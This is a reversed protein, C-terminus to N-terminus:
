YEAMTIKDGLQGALTYIDSLDLHTEEGKNNYAVAHGSIYRYKEAGSSVIVAVWGDALHRTFVESWDLEDAGDEDEDWVSFMDGGGDDDDDMVGYLTVGDTEKTIVKVPYKEMEAVFEENNKVMFYNSRAQGYFNAM